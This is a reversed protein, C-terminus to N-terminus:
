KFEAADEGWINVARHVTLIPIFITQGKKVRPTARSNAYSKPMYFRLGSTNMYIGKKM